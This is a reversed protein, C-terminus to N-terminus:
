KGEAQKMFQKAQEVITEWEPHGMFYDDDATWTNCLAEREKALGLALRGDSPPQAGPDPCSAKIQM